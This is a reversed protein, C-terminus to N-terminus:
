KGLKKKWIAGERGARVICWWASSRSRLLLSRLERRGPGPDWDRRRGSRPGSAAGRSVVAVLWSFVGWTCWTSQVPTHILAWPSNTLHTHDRITFPNNYKNPLERRKYHPTTSHNSLKQLKLYPFISLLKNPKINSEITKIDLWLWSIISM